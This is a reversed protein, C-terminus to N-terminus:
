YPTEVLSKKINYDGKVNSARLPELNQTTLNENNIQGTQYNEELNQNNNYTNNFSYTNNINNNQKTEEYNINHQVPNMEVKENEIIKDVQTKYTEFKDLDKKNLNNQQKCTVYEQFPSQNPIYGYPLHKKFPPIQYYNEKRYHLEPNNYNQLSIQGLRKFRDGAKVAQVFKNYKESIKSNNNKNEETLNYKTSPITQSQALKNEETVISLNKYAKIHGFRDYFGPQMGLTAKYFNPPMDKRTYDQTYTTKPHQANTYYIGYISNTTSFPDFGKM